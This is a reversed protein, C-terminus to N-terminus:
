FIFLYCDHKELYRSHQYVQLSSVTCDAVKEQMTFDRIAYQLRIEDARHKVNEQVKMELTLRTKFNM